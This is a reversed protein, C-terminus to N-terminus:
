HQLSRPRSEFSETNLQAPVACPGSRALGAQFAAEAQAYSRRIELFAAHAVYFM